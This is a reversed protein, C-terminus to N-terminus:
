CSRGTELNPNTYGFSAAGKEDAIRRITDVVDDLSAPPVPRGENFVLDVGRLKEMREALTSHGGSTFSIGAERLPALATDPVIFKRPMHRPSGLVTGWFQDFLFRLARNETERDPFAITTIDTLM